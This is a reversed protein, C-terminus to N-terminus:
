PIFLIGQGVTMVVTSCSDGVRHLMAHGVSLATSVVKGPRPGLDARAPVPFSYGPPCGIGFGQRWKLEDGYHM